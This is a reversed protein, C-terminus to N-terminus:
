ADQRGISRRKSRSPWAQETRGARWPQPTPPTPSHGRRAPDSLRRRSHLERLQTLIPAAGPQVAVGQRRRPLGANM